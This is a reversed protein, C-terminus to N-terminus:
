LAHGDLKWQEVLAEGTVMIMIVMMETDLLPLWWKVTGVLTVASLPQPLTEWPAIGSQKWQELGMIDMMPQQGEMTVTAALPSMCKAMEVSKLASLPLPFM